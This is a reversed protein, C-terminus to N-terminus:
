GADALSEIAQRCITETTELLQKVRPALYDVDGWFIIFNKKYRAGIYARDLLTFREQAKETDDPFIERFVPGFEAAEEGLWALLHEHPCYGTFVLLIAKYASESAQNLNFAALPLDGKEYCFEYIGYFKRARDYWYDFDAQAIRQREEPSLERPEVLTFAESDHLLRGERKIDLFFYRGEELQDNLDDIDHVIPSVRASLGPIKVAEKIAHLFDAGVPEQVVVLIDYDSVHGSWRNPNLAKEERWDGRAYSGFLIVMEVGKRVRLIEAIRELERQKEQPLHSIDTQMRTEKDQDYASFWIM